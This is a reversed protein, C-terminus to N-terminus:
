PNEMLPFTYTEVTNLVVAIVEQEEIPDMFGSLRVASCVIEILELKPLSRLSGAAQQLQQLLLLLQSVRKDKVHWSSDSYTDSWVRTPRMNEASSYFLLDNFKDMTTEGIETTRSLPPNTRLLENVQRIM